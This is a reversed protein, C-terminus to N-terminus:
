ETRPTARRRQWLVAMLWWVGLLGWASSDQPQMRCACGGELNPRGDNGGRGSSGGGSSGGGSGGGDSGGGDSGGGDMSCVGDEDVERDCDDDRGNCVEEAAPSVYPNGDDCDRDRGYGDGDRDVRREWPELCRGYRCGHECSLSDCPDTDVCAGDVCTVACAVGDCPDPAPALRCSDDATLQDDPCAFLGAIAVHVSNPDDRCGYEVFGERAGSRWEPCWHNLCVRNDVGAKLYFTGLYVPDPPVCCRRGTGTRCVLTGTCDGDVNCTNTNDVDDVVYRGGPENGALPLGAPNCDNTITLFGIEDRQSTCSEAIARDFLDYYGSRGVRIIGCRNGSNDHLVVFEGGAGGSVELSVREADPCPPPDCVGTGYNSDVCDGSPPPLGDDPPDVCVSPDPEM